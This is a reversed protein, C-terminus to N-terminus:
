HLVVGLSDALFVDETVFVNHLNHFLSYVQFNM